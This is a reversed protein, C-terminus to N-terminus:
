SGTPVPAASQPIRYFLRVEEMSTNDPVATLNPYVAEGVGVCQVLAGANVLDCVLEVVELQPAAAIRLFTEFALDGEPRTDVFAQLRGRATFRRLFSRLM